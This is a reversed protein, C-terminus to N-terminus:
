GGARGDDCPGDDATGRSHEATFSATCAQLVAENSLCALATEYDPEEAIEKVLQSYAVKGQGDIVMVARAMLGALPGDTIRVGYADGFEPSRFTSASVVHDLGEAGCFRAHAFPLDASICLVVANDHKGIESNFKRVSMACVPTDISPFINLVVTKGAYDKLSIASLEKSTLTFDPAIEGPRPLDGSLQVPSGKFATKAM